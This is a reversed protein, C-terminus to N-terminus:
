SNGQELLWEYDAARASEVAYAALADFCGPTAKTHDERPRGLQAVQRVAQPKKALEPLNTGIASRETPPRPLTM